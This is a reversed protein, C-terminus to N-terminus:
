INEFEVDIIEDLVFYINQSNRIVMDCMYSQKLISPDDIRSGDVKAKVLWLKGQFDITKFM